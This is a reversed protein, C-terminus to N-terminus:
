NANIVSQTVATRTMTQGKQIQQELNQPLFEMLRLQLPVFYKPLLARTWIPDQAPILAQAVLLIVAVFLLGRAFGFVMGMLRDLGGLGARSVLRSIIFNLMSGAILTVVFLILVSAAIRFTNQHIYPELAQSLPKCFSFSIWFAAIWSVLSLAERFFGRVISILTSFALIALIGYDVWNFMM